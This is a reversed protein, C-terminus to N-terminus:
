DVCVSNLYLGFWTLGVGWREEVPSERQLDSGGGGGPGPALHWTVLYRGQAGSGM